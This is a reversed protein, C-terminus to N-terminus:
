RVRIRADVIRCGQMEPLAVVPNFDIERVEPLEVVLSSVRLLLQEIAAVDAASQGRYGALLRYGRITRVMDAADRNTIPALQYCVDNVIEVRTGGLGFALLPGLEPDVTMGILLEIGSCMPQVLFGSHAAAESQVSVREMLRDFGARLEKESRLDLEIAGVDTKHLIEASASKLAVPFGFRRAADVAEGSSRAITGALMPLGVAQALEYVHQTPLWGDSTHREADAIIRRAADLDANELPPFIGAPLRRWSAYAAAKGLSRAAAAPADCCPIVENPTELRLRNGQKTMVCVVVPRHITSTSRAAGIGDCIAEVFEAMPVMEVPVYIVIVADIEDSALLMETARRFETPGASALMDIPNGLTAPPGVVHALHNQTEASLTPVVLGLKECADACLVAPGGANTVIGVRPGNPLPQHALLAALDLMEDLGEARIIGAQDLLADVAVQGSAMAATHSRAARRGAEEHGAKIAVIPKRRGIRSAAQRFRPADRIAELYLLIVDTQDDEGWHEILEAGSVDAENGVSVFQSFGINFTDGKALALVGLAGSQSCLAISGSSMTLPCFTTNLRVAPDTNIVGVCNPGVIRLRDRRAKEALLRQLTTGDADAEAFGASVVVIFRVNAHACQDIVELVAQRPVCVVALSIGEPLSVISTYVPLDGIEGGQPHVPYISGAFGTAVLNRVIRNGLNQPVTSAGVVAISAPRFLSNLSTPM